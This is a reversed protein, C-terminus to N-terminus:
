VGCPGGIRYLRGRRDGTHRDTACRLGSLRFVFLLRPLDALRPYSRDKAQAAVAKTSGSRGRSGWIRTTGRLCGRESPPITIYAKVKTVFV